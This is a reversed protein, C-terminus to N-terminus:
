KEDPICEMLDGPQCNLIKCLKEITETNVPKNDLMNQYTAKGIRYPNKPSKVLYYGSIGMREILEFTKRFSIM